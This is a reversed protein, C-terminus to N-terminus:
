RLSAKNPQTPTNPQTNIITHDTQLVAMVKKKTTKKTKQNKKKKNNLQSDSDSPNRAKDKSKEQGTWSKGHHKVGNSYGLIGACRITNTSNSTKRPTNQMTAM